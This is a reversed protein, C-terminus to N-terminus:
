RDKIRGTIIFSFVPIISVMFLLRKKILFLQFAIAQLNKKNAKTVQRKLAM